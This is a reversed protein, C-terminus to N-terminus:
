ERAAIYKIDILFCCIQCIETAKGHNKIHHMLYTYINESAMLQFLSKKALLLHMFALFFQQFFVSSQWCCCDRFTHPLKNTETFTVVKQHRLLVAIAVTVTHTHRDWLTKGVWRCRRRSERGDWKGQQCLLKFCIHLASALGLRAEHYAAFMLLMKGSEMLLPFLPFIGGGASFVLLHFHFNPLLSHLHVVCCNLKIQQRQENKEQRFRYLILWTLNRM